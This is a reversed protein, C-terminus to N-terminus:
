REVKPGVRGRWVYFIYHESICHANRKTTSGAVIEPLPSHINDVFDPNLMLLKGFVVRVVHIQSPKFMGVVVNGLVM